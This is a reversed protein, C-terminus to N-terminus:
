DGGESGVDEWTVKAGQHGAKVIWGTALAGTIVMLATLITAITVNPKSSDGGSRRRQMYEYIALALAIL